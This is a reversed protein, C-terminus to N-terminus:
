AHGRALRIMVKEITEQPDCRLCDECHKQRRRYKNRTCGRGEGRCAWLEFDAPTSGPGVREMITKLEPKKM